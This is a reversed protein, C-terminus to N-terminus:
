RVEENQEEFGGECHTGCGVSKRIAELMDVDDPNEKPPVKRAESCFAAKSFVEAAM